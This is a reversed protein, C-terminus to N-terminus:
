QGQQLETVKGADVLGRQETSLAADPWRVEVAAATCDGVGFHLTLDNQLGFHGYGGGVERVIKTGGANLTVRAGIASANSGAKGALRLEVYNGKKAADNEYFHIENTKYIKGCDRATGSGVVVDLDGDRDFDAVALGSACPHHLGFAEGKEEFTGDAKQHFVWLYQDAYDSSAVLIDSRGDNDLDEAAAMLGGENWGSTPHPWDLGQATRDVRSYKVAGGSVSGVLLTSPDSSKGAWFHRIEANFLDMVGDGTVDACVTSFTNGNNRWPMADYSSWGTSACDIIPPNAPCFHDDGHCYRCLFM